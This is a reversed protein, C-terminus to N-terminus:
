AGVEAEPEIEHNEEREQIPEEISIVRPLPKNTFKEVAVDYPMYTFVETGWEIPLYEFHFDTISNPLFRTRQYGVEEVARVFPEIGKWLPIGRLSYVSLLPNTNNKADLLSLFSTSGSKMSWIIGKDFFPGGNHALDFVHDLWVSPSGWMGRHYHVGAQAIMGWKEGGVSSSWRQNRFLDVLVPLCVAPNYAPLMEWVNKRGLGNGGSKISFHMAHFLEWIVYRDPMPVLDRVCYRAEGASALFIYDAMTPTVINVMEDFAIAADEFLPQFKRVIAASKRSQEIYWQQSDLFGYFSAVVGLISEQMNRLNDLNM